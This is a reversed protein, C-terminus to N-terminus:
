EIGKTPAGNFRIVMDAQDIESGHKANLLLGSNGVVACTKFQKSGIPDKEPVLDLLPGKAKGVTRLAPDKDPLFIQPSNNFDTGAQIEHPGAKLGAKSM